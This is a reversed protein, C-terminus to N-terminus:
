HRGHKSWRGTYTITINFLEFDEYNMLALKKMMHLMKACAVFDKPGMAEM